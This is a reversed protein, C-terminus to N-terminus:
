SWIGPQRRCRSCSTGVQDQPVCPAHYYQVILLNYDPVDESPCGCWIQRLDGYFYFGMFQDGAVFLEGCGDCWVSDDNTAAISAAREEEEAMAKMYAFEEEVTPQYFLDDPLHRIDRDSEREGLCSACLTVYSADSTPDAITDSALVRTACIIPVRERHAKLYKLICYGCTQCTFKDRVFVNERVQGKTLMKM